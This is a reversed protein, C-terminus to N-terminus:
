NMGEVQDEANQSHCLRLCTTLIKDDNTMDQFSFLTLSNAIDYLMTNMYIYYSPSDSSYTGAWLLLVESVSKM